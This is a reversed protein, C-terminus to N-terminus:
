NKPKKDFPDAVLGEQALVTHLVSIDTSVDWTMDQFVSDLLKEFAVNLTDLTQEIERKSQQISDSQVPQSDLDAYADLLKVTVPLYYDMLRELDGLVEPHERAHDFISDVVREIQDIKRSVEEGPIADNSSRIKAIYARGRELMAQAEPTIAVPDGKPPAPEEASRMLREQKEQRMRERMLRQDNLYRQYAEETVMLLTESMDLHGQTFFGRAIMKRLDKQVRKVSAGTKHALEAVKVSERSGIIREYAQLRRAAGVKRVGSALLFASAVLLAGTMVLGGMASSPPGYAVIPAMESALASAFSATFVGGTVAMAYGGAKMGGAKKYRGKIRAIEARQQNQWIIQQQRAFEARERKEQAERASQQAQEIGRRVGEAAQGLSDGVKKQLNSFDQSSVADQIANLIQDGINQAM